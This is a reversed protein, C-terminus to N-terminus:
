LLDEEITILSKLMIQVEMRGVSASEGSITSEFATNVQDIVRLRKLIIAPHCECIMSGIPYKLSGLSEGQSRQSTIFNGSM